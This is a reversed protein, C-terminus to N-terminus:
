GVPVYNTAAASPSIGNFFNHDEIISDQLNFAFSGLRSFPMSARKFTTLQSNFHDEVGEEEISEM